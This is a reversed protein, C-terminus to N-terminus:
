DRSPLVILGLETAVVFRDKDLSWKAGPRATKAFTLLQTLRARELSAGLWGSLLERGIEDPMM